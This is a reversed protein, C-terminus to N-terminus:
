TPAFSTAAKRMVPGSAVDHEVAALGVVAGIIM